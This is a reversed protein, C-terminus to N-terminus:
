IWGPSARERGRDDHGCADLFHQNNLLVAYAERFAHVDSVPGKEIRKAAGVMVSDFVAANLARVPRFARSGISEYILDVTKRFEESMAAADRDSLEM